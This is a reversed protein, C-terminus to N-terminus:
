GKGMTCAAVVLLPAAIIVCIVPTCAKSSISLCVSEDNECHIILNKPTLHKCKMRYNAYYIRSKYIKFTETKIGMPLDVGEGRGGGGRSGIRKNECMNGGFIMWTTPRRGGLPFDQIRLMSRGHNVDCTTITM